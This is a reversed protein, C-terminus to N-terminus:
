VPRQREEGEEEDTNLDDDDADDYDNDDDDADEDELGHESSVKGLPDDGDDPVQELEVPEALPDESGDALPNFLAEDDGDETDGLGDEEDDHQPEGAYAGNDIRGSRVMGTMTEVLDPVDDPLMQARDGPGRSSEGLGPGPRRAEEAVDQAQPGDQQERNITEATDDAQEDDGAM